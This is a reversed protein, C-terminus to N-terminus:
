ASRITFDIGLRQVVIENARLDTSVNLSRVDIEKREVADALSRLARAIAERSANRGLPLHRGTEPPDTFAEASVASAAGAIGLISLATRRSLAM